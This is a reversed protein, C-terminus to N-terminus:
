IGGTERGRRRRCPRRLPPSGTSKAGSKTKARGTAREVTDLPLTSFPFSVTLPQIQKVQGNLCLVRRARKTELFIEVTCTFDFRRVCAHFM